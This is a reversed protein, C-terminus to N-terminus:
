IPNEEEDAKRRNEALIALYEQVLPDDLKRRSVFRLSPHPTTMPITVVKAGAALKDMFQRKLGAIAEEETGGEASLMLASARYLTESVREVLIQLDM